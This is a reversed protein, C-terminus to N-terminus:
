TQVRAATRIAEDNISRDVHGHTYNLIHAVTTRNVGYEIALSSYTCVRNTATNSDYKRRMKAIQQPTLKMMGRM